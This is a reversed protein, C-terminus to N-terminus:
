GVEAAYCRLREGPRCPERHCGWVCCPRGRLSPRSQKSCNLSLSRSADDLLGLCALVSREHPCLLLNTWGPVDVRWTAPSRSPDTKRGWLEVVWGLTYCVNALFGYVLVGLVLIMPEVADEGLPIVKTMLWEMGAIAAVGVVFLILNYLLRRLEWWRIVQGTTMLAASGAGENALSTHM